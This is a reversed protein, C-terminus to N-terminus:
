FRSSVLTWIFNLKLNTVSLFISAIFLIQYTTPKNVRYSLVSFLYRAFIKANEPRAFHQNQTEFSRWSYTFQTMLRDGLEIPDDTTEHTYLAMKYVTLSSIFTIFSRSKLKDNNEWSLDASSNLVQVPYKLNPWKESKEWDIKTTSFIIKM